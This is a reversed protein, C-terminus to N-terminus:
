ARGLDAVLRITFLLLYFYSLNSFGKSLYLNFNVKLFASIIDYECVCLTSAWPLYLSVSTWLIAPVESNKQIMLNPHFKGPEAKVAVRLLHTACSRVLPLPWVVFSGGRGMVTWASELRTVSAQLVATHGVPWSGAAWLGCEKSSHFATILCESLASVCDTVVSCLWNLEGGQERGQVQVLSRAKRAGSQLSFIHIM